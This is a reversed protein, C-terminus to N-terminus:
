KAFTMLQEPTMEAEEYINDNARQGSDMSALRMDKM